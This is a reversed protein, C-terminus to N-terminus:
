RSHNSPPLECTTGDLRVTTKPGSLPSVLQCAPSEVLPDARATMAQGLSSRHLPFHARTTPGVREVRVGGAVTLNASLLDRAPQIV